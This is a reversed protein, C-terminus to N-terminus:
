EPKEPPPPQELSPGGTLSLPPVPPLVVTPAQQGQHQQLVAQWTSAIDCTGQKKMKEQSNVKDVKGKEVKKAPQPQSEALKGLGAAKDQNNIRKTTAAIIDAINTPVSLPALLAGSTTTITVTGDSVHAPAPAAAAAAKEKEAIAQRKRSLLEEIEKETFMRKKDNKDSYKWQLFSLPFHFSSSCNTFFGNKKTKKHLIAGRSRHCPLHVLLGAHSSYKSSHM